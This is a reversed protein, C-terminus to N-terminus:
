CKKGSSCYCNVEKSKSMDNSAGSCDHIWTCELEIFSMKVRAVMQYFYVFASKM